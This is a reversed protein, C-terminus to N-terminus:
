TLPRVNSPKFGFKPASKRVADAVYSPALHGYHKEVMRTDVHGLNRAIVMLPMGAMVSLSAWTHRLGHFGIPPEIKARKVVEVMRRAQDSKEWASGDGKRLILADGPRGATLQKFLAQGEGTLVIHRAEGSKSQRIHMTGVDPNFDAVILRALESYRAGTQLAAQVLLRFDPDCVNILRKAEQITLYRLRAADVKEFPKVKRWATDSPTEDNQFARNLAARLVTWTRNATARRARKQDDTSIEKHKQVETKRTRLRPATRAMEDRWKRLRQSTLAIVETEGLKPLILADARYQADRILYAPRGESELFQFYDKMAKTVTYPQKREIPRHAKAREQAQAFTLISHGDADSFDDAIVLGDGATLNKVTYAGAGSYRRVIWTGPGNALKRYGLHLGSEILRFYPKHSVKLRSRATRTELNSDRVKRPMNYIEAPRYCAPDLVPRIYM